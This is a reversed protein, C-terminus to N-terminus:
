DANDPESWAATALWRTLAARPILYRRGIRIFPMQGARLMKYTTKESIGTIAVTERPSLTARQPGRTIRIYERKAKPQEKTTPSPM